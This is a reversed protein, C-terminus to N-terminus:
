NHGFRNFVRGKTATCVEISYVGASHNAVRAPLMSSDQGSLVKRQIGCSLNGRFDQLLGKISWAQETLIVIYQSGEEEVRDMFVCVFHVQGIDLLRSRVSPCYSM